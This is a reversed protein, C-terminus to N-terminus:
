TPPREEDVPRWETNYDPHDAYPLALLRLVDLEARTHDLQHWLIEADSAERIGFSAWTTLMTVIRRKSDVDARVRAAAGCDCNLASGSGVLVCSELHIRNASYGDGAQAAEDEDLRATLFENLTVRTM